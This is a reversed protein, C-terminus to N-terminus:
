GLVSHQPNTFNQYPDTGSFYPDPKKQMNSKSPVNVDTKISLFDFTLFYFLVLNKESNQKNISSDPDPDKCFLAPDPDLLGLFETDPDVVSRSHIM